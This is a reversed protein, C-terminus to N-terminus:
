RRSDATRPVLTTGRGADKRLRRIWLGLFTQRADVVRMRPGYTNTLRLSSTRLGYVDHYLRHYWSGALKHIGNIDTPALPHQEDVPQRRPKGYVQRTGAYVIEPKAPHM